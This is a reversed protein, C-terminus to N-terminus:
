FQRQGGELMEELEVRDVDVDDGDGLLLNGLARATEAVAKGAVLRNRVVKPFFTKCVHADLPPKVVHRM